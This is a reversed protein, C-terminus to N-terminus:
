ARGSGGCFDGAATFYFTETTGDAYTLQKDREPDRVLPVGGVSVGVIVDGAAGTIRTPLPVNTIAVAGSVGGGSDSGSRDIDAGRLTVRALGTFGPGARLRVYVAGEALGRYAGAATIETQAAGGPLPEVPLPRYATDIAGEVLLPGSFTGSVEAAFGDVEHLSLILSQGPGIEGRTFNITSMALAVGLVGDDSRDGGGLAAL